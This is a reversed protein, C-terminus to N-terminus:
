YFAEEPRETVIRFLFSCTCCKKATKTTNWILAVKHWMSQKGKRNITERVFQVHRADLWISGVADRHMSCNNSIRSLNAYPAYTTFRDRSAFTKCLTDCCRTSERSNACERKIKPASLVSISKPITQAVCSIESFFLADATTESWSFM